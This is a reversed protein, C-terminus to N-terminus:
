GKANDVEDKKKKFTLYVPKQLDFSRALKELLRNLANRSQTGTGEGTIRTVPAICGKSEELANNFTHVLIGTRDPVAEVLCHWGFRDSYRRRIRYRGEPICSSRKRNNKWPLEITYGIKKGGLFLIGNTGKVGYTREITLEM